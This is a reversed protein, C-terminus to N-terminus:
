KDFSVLDEDTLALKLEDRLLPIIKKGFKQIIEVACARMHSVQTTQDADISSQGIASVALAMAAHGYETISFAPTARAYVNEVFPQLSPEVKSIDIKFGGPSTVTKRENECM